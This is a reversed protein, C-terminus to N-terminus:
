SPCNKKSGTLFRNSNQFHDLDVTLFVKMMDKKKMEIREKEARLETNLVKIKAMRKEEREFREIEDQM